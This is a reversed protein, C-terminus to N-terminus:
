ELARCQARGVPASTRFLIVGSPVLTGLSPVLEIRM